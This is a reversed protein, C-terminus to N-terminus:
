VERLIGITNWLRFLSPTHSPIQSIDWLALQILTPNYLGPLNWVHLNTPSSYQPYLSHFTYLCLLLFTWGVASPLKNQEKTLRRCLHLCSVPSLDKCATRSSHSAPCISTSPLHMMLGPREQDEFLDSSAAEQRHDGSMTMVGALKRPEHRFSFVPKQWQQKQQKFYRSHQQKVAQETQGLLRQGWLRISNVQMSESERQWLLQSTKWRLGLCVLQTIWGLHSLFDAPVSPIPEKTRWVRAKKM